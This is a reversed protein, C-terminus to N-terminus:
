ETEYVKKRPHGDPLRDNAIKGIHSYSYTDPDTTFKRLEQSIAQKFQNVSKGDFAALAVRNSFAYITNGPPNIAFMSDESGITSYVNETSTEGLLFIMEDNEMPKTPGSDIGGIMRVEIRDNCEGYWIERPEVFISTYSLGPVGLQEETRDIVEVVKGEVILDAALVDVSFIEEDTFYIQSANIDYEPSEIRTEPDYQHRNPDYQRTPDLLVSLLTVIVSFLFLAAIYFAKPNRLLREKVPLIQFKM